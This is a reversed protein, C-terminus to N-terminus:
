NTQWRARPRTADFDVGFYIASGRPQRITEAGYTRSYLADAVGSARDFNSAQDGFRGEHVICLRLGVAALQEAEERSLRKSPRVTDRSYYRIITRVGTAFLAAAKSGCASSVDVISPM